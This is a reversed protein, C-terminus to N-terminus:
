HAHTWFSFRRSLWSCRFPRLPPRHTSRPLISPPRATTILWQLAQLYQTALTLQVTLGSTTSSLSHSYQGCVFRSRRNGDGNYGQGSKRCTHDTAHNLKLVAVSRVSVGSLLSLIPSRRTYMTCSPTTRCRFFPSSVPPVYGGIEDLLITDTDSAQAKCRSRSCSKYKESDYLEEITPKFLRSM